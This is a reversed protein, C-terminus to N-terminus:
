FPSPVLVYRSALKQFSHALLGNVLEPAESTRDQFVPPDRAGVVKPFNDEVQDLVVERPLLVRVGLSVEVLHVVEGLCEVKRRDKPVRRLVVLPFRSVDGFLPHPLSGMEAQAGPRTSPPSAVPM